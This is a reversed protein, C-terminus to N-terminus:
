MSASWTSASAAQHDRPRVELGRRHAATYLGDPWFGQDLPGYQFLFKNNLMLRTIGRDDKGLAIKRMGFYSDVHDITEFKEGDPEFISIEMSYLFPDDPSWLPAGAFEMKLPEGAKGQISSVVIAKEDAKQKAPDIVEVKVFQRDTTGVCKVTVTVSGFDDSTEINPIAQFSEIRVSPVAELWVTQWIGTTPTYWISNPRLVQKGRPQFSADSPDFVSLVIEQEAGFKLKDTIDFTFPDYGGRHDGVQKGNVYVTTYWDVAGFHLMIRKGDGAGDVKVARRYWLRNNPGVPKMVGSLASEVPFPVLIQGDFDKPQAEGKPRIAYDWLGNLNQWQKRVMQPRPYEPHVKDPSVDKAWRTMLPAQKPQWDAPLAPSAVSLLLAVVILRTM